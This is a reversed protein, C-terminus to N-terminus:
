LRALWQNQDVSASGPSHFWNSFQAVHLHNILAFPVPPIQWSARKSYKGVRFSKRRCREKTASGHPAYLITDHSSVFKSVEKLLLLFFGTHTSFEYSAAALRWECQNLFKLWTCSGNVKRGIKRTRKPLQKRDTWCAVNGATGYHQSLHKRKRM